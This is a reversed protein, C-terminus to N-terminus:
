SAAMEKEQPAKTSGQGIWELLLPAAIFITSYTGSLFGVVLCFSFGALGEGGFLYFILVVTWSTLSTLITRSLTANIAANILKASPLPSRGKLERIRDFIVITDNVSFGILTLFAAIMPLDIRYGAPALAIAGLVILVDHVLAVVAAVGYSVSQFRFWLYAIIILWSAVIAVAAKQRTEGAVVGGFNEVREFVANDDEALNTKLIALAQGFSEPDLNARVRLENVATETNALEAPNVVEPNATAADIELKEDNLVEQFAAEIRSPPQPINFTLRYALPETSASEADEEVEAQEEATYDLNLRILQDGFADLVAQKVVEQDEQTTRINYRPDGQVGGEIVALSEVKPAPLAENSEVQARVDAITTGEEFRATVLTGGTFDIDYIEGKANLGGKAFAFTALGILIVLLSGAMCYRHPGVFDIKTKSLLRRMKIKRIWNQSYALDFLSRSVFVATFLNWVLGIIMVIAFGKVEETGVLWLVMGALITTVNSDLITSWAKGFGNRIQQGLAVGRDQEERIREFILVNADVAMGITLALGALGPLTISSGTASMSALLLLMNLLLAIVSIVGAFGYYLIMFIPVLILGISIAIQGKRITDEGLTPGITEEQLPTKQVAMPLSGANLIDILQDVEENINRSDGISIMGENRIRNQITPASVLEDDLLIALEYEFAGEERPRHSGTLNAFRRAGVNDLNFGVAPKLTQPDQKRFVRSLQDGDVRMSARPEEYLISFETTQNQADEAAVMGRIIWEKRATIDDGVISYNIGRGPNRKILYRSADPLPTQDSYPTVVPLGSRPDMTLFDVTSPSPQALLLSGDDDYGEVEAVMEPPGYSTEEVTAVSGEFEAEPGWLYVAAGVLNSPLKAYSDVFRYGQYYNTYNAPGAQWGEIWEGLRTWNFGSVEPLNDVIPPETRRLNRLQSMSSFRAASATSALIRFQLAGEKTLREKVSETESILDQPLIIEVRDNGLKRITIDKTGDPNIRRRLATILEDIDIDNRSSSTEREFQLVSRIQEIDGALLQRVRTREQNDGISIRVEDEVGEVSSTAAIETVIPRLGEVISETTAESSPRLSYTLLSAEERVLKLEDRIREPAAADDTAGSDSEAGLRLSARIADAQSKPVRIEIKGDTVGVSARETNVLGLYEAVSDAVDDRSQGEELSREDVGYTLTTSDLEVQYVLITGGSLDIGLTLPATDSLGIYPGIFPLTSILTVLSILILRYKLSM